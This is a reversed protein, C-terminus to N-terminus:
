SLSPDFGDPTNYSQLLVAYHDFGKLLKHQILEFTTHLPLAGWMNYTACMCCM